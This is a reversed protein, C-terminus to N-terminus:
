AVEAFTKLRSMLDLAEAVPPSTISGKYTNVGKAFGPNERLADIGKYALQLVYPLTAHTLAM